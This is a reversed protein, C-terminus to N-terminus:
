VHPALPSLVALLVDLHCEQAVATGGKRGLEEDFVSIVDLLAFLQKVVVELHDLDGVDLAKGVTRVRVGLHAVFAEDATHKFLLLRLLLLLLDRSRMHLHGKNPRGSAVVSVADLARQAAAFEQLRQEAKTLDPVLSAPEGVVQLVEQEDVDFSLKLFRM